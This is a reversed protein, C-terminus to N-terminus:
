RENGCGAEELCFDSVLVKVKGRPGVLEFCEGCITGNGFLHSNVSAVAAQKTGTDGERPGYGCAGGQVGINSAM